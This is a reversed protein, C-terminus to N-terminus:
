VMLLLSKISQNTKIFDLTANNNNNNNNKKKHSYNEEKSLISDIM